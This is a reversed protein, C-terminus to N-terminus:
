ARFLGEITARVGQFFERAEKEARDPMDFSMSFM